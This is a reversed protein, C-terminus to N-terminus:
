EADIVYGYVRRNKMYYELVPYSMEDAMGNPTIYKDKSIGLVPMMHGVTFDDGYEPDLFCLVVKKQKIIEKIIDPTVKSLYKAEPFYHKLTKVVNKYESGHTRYLDVKCQETLKELMNINIRNSNNRWQLLNYIAIPACVPARFKQIYYKPM